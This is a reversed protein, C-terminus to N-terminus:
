NIDIGERNVGMSMLASNKKGGASDHNTLEFREHARAGATHLATLIAQYQGEGKKAHKRIEVGEQDKFM